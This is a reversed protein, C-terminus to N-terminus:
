GLLDTLLEAWRNYVTDQSFYNRMDTKANFALEYRLNRDKLKEVWTHFQDVDREIIMNTGHVAPYGQACSPTSIIPVGARIPDILKTQIGTGGVLPAIFLDSKRILELVDGVDGISEVNGKAFDSGGRGAVVFRVEPVRPAIREIIVEKARANPLNRSNGFFVASGLADKVSVEDGNIEIPPQIRVLRSAIESEFGKYEYWRKARDLDQDTYFVVADADKAM